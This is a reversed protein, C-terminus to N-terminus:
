AGSVPGIRTGRAETTFFPEFLHLQVEPTLGPGDDSIRLELRDDAHALWRMQVAGPKDSAYRLGNGLINVLVQRFHNADFVIPSDTELSLAIRQPDAGASHTFEALFAPLFVQADIKEQGPPERRSMSLVDEVIHDIRVTNTEVIRSM